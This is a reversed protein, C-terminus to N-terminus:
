RVPRLYCLYKDIYNFFLNDGTVDLLRIHTSLKNVGLYPPFKSTTNSPQSECTPRQPVTLLGRLAIRIGPVYSSAAISPVVEVPIISGGRRVRTKIHRRLGCGRGSNRHSSEEVALKYSSLTCGKPSGYFAEGESL